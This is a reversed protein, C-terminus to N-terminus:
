LRVRMIWDAESVQEYREAGQAAYFEPMDTGLFVEAIGLRKAHEAGARCLARGIGRRRFEPLVILAALWPHLDPRSTSDSEILNITGAPTGDVLAILSLPIRDPDNAEELRGVFYDVSFGPKDRWFTEYIWTAVTRIEAPHNVLHDIVLRM